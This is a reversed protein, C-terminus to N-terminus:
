PPSVELQQAAYWAKAESDFGDLWESLAAAGPNMNHSDRSRGANFAAAGRARITDRSIIAQDM